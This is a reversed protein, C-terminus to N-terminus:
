KLDSQDSESAQTTTIAASDTTVPAPTYVLRLYASKEEADPVVPAQQEWIACRADDFRNGARRFVLWLNLADAERLEPHPWDQPNDMYSGLYAVAAHIREQQGPYELNLADCVALVGLFARLCFTSYHMARTRTLETPLKGDATIQGTLQPLKEAYLNKIDEDRGAFLGYAGVQAFYWVGHNNQQASEEAGYDSTMFWDFLQEVWERFAADDQATWSPSGRLLVVADLMTPMSWTDIMGIARGDNHGPIAQAYQLHPNMRTSEDLFFTRLWHAAQQAYREDGTLYYALGLRRVTGMVTGLRAMDQRNEKNHMGDKRVYPLGDDTDPNPWWYFGMSFYDHPDGSAPLITKDVVAPPQRKLDADAYRLLTRIEVPAGQPDAQYRDRMEQIQRGQWVITSPYAVPTVTTSLEKTPDTEVKAPSQGPTSVKCGPLILGLCCLFVPFSLDRHMRHSHKGYRPTM